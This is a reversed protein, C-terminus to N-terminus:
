NADQAARNADSLKKVDNNAQVLMRQGRGDLNAGVALERKIQM